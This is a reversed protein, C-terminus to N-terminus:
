VLTLEKYVEEILKNQDPESDKPGDLGLDFEFKHEVKDFNPKETSYLKFNMSFDNQIESKTINEQKLTKTMLSSEVLTSKSENILSKTLDEIVKEKNEIQKRPSIQESVEDECHVSPKDKNQNNNIIVRRFEQTGKINSCGM